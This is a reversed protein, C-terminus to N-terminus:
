RQSFIPTGFRHPITHGEDLICYASEHYHCREPKGGMFDSSEWMGPLDGDPLDYISNDPLVNMFFDILDDLVESRYVDWSSGSEVEEKKSDDRMTKLINILDHRSISGNGEPLTASENVFPMKSVIEQAIRIGAGAGIYPIAGIENELANLTDERNIYIAM